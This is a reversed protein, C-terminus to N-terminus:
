MCMIYTIVDDLLALFLASGNGVNVKKKRKKKLTVTIKVYTLCSTQVEHNCGIMIKRFTNATQQM